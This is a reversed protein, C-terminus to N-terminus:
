NELRHLTKQSEGVQRDSNKSKRTFRGTRIAASGSIRNRLLITSRTLDFDLEEALEVADIVRDIKTQHPYYYALYKDEVFPSVQVRNPIEGRRTTLLRERSKM